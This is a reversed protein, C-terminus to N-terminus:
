YGFVQSVFGSEEDENHLTERGSLAAKLKDMKRLGRRESLDCKLGELLEPYLHCQRM